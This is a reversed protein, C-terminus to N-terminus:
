WDGVGGITSNIELFSTSIQIGFPTFHLSNTSILKVDGVIRRSNRWDGGGAYGDGVRVALINEKEFNIYETIDYVRTMDGYEYEGLYHENIWVRSGLRIMEFEIFIRKGKSMPTIAFHKRYWGTMEYVHEPIKEM